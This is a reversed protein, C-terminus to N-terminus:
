HKDKERINKIQRTILLAAYIFIPVMVDAFILSLLLNSPGRALGVGLTALVLGLIIFVLLAALIIKKM